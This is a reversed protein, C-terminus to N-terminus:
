RVVNQRLADTMCSAMLSRGLHTLEFKIEPIASHLPTLNSLPGVKYNGTGTGVQILWELYDAVKSFSDYTPAANTGSMGFPLGQSMKNQTLNRGTRLGICRLRFLNQIAIERHGEPFHQYVRQALAILRETWEKNAQNINDGVRLLEEQDLKTINQPISPWQRRNLESLVLLLGAEVPGIAKLIEIFARTMTVEKDPTITSTILGAWLEQVTENDEFSCAEALRYADGESVASLSDDNM